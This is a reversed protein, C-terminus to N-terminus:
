ENILEESLKLKVHCQNKGVVRITYHVGYPIGKGVAFKGYSVHFAMDDMLFSYDLEIGIIECFDIDDITQMYSRIFAKKEDYIKGLCVAKGSLWKDVDPENTFEFGCEYTLEPRKFKIFQWTTLLKRLIRMRLTRDTFNPDFADRDYFGDLSDFNITVRQGINFKIPIM